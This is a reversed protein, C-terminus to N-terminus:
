ISEPTWPWTPPHQPSPTTVRPGPGLMLCLHAAPPSIVWRCAARKLQQETMLQTMKVTVYCVRGMRLGMAKSGKQEGEHACLHPKLFLAALSSSVEAQMVAVAPLWGRPQRRWKGRAVEKEQRGTRGKSWRLAAVQSHTSQPNCSMASPVPGAEGCHPRSFETKGPGDISKCPGPGPFSMNFPFPVASRQISLLFPSHCFCLRPIVHFLLNLCSGPLSFPNFIPYVRTFSEQFGLHGFFSPWFFTHFAATFASWPVGGKGVRVSTMAPHSSMLIMSLFVAEGKQKTVNPFKFAIHHIIGFPPSQLKQM